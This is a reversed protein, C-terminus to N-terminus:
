ENPEKKFIETVSFFKAANPLPSDGLPVDTKKSTFGLKDLISIIQTSTKLYVEMCTNPRPVDRVYVIPNKEYAEELSTALNFLTCLHFLMDLSENPVKPSLRIWMKRGTGSIPKNDPTSPVGEPFEEEELPEKNEQNQNTFVNVKRSPLSLKNRIPLSM